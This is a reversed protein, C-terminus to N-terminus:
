LPSEAWRTRTLPTNVGAFGIRNAMSTMRETLDSVQDCSQKLYAITDDGPIDSLTVDLTENTHWDVTWTRPLASQHTPHNRMRRLIALWGIPSPDTQEELASDIDAILESLGHYSALHPITDDDEVAKDNRRLLKTFSSWKYRHPPIRDDDEIGLAQEASLIMLVVSADFAGSLASLAGDLAMEVGIYAQFDGLQATLTEVASTYWDASWVKYRVWGSRPDSDLLDAYTPGAPFVISSYTPSPGPM